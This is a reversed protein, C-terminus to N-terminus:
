EGDRAEAYHIECHRAAIRSITRGGGMIRLWPVTGMEGCEEYVVIETVDEEGVRWYSGFKSPVGASLIPTPDSKMRM